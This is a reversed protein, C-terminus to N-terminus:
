EKKRGTGWFYKRKAIEKKEVSKQTPKENVDTGPV